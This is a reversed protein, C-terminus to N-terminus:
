VSYITPLTLHTYSVAKIVAGVSTPSLSISILAPYMLLVHWFQRIKWTFFPPQCVHKAPVCTLAATAGRGAGVLRVNCPTAVRSSRSLSQVAVAFCCYYSVSTELFQHKSGLEFEEAIQFFFFVFAWSHSRFRLSPISDCLFWSHSRFKERFFTM